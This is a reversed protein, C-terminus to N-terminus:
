IDIQQIIAKSNAPIAVLSIELLEVESIYRINNYDNYYSNKVQFGISLGSVIRHKILDIIENGLNLSIDVKATVYLGYEDETLSEIFGILQDINHEWLLDIQWNHYNIYDNRKKLLTEKFSGPLIVDNNADITNFVSAYGGFAYYHSKLPKQNFYFFKDHRLLASHYLSM